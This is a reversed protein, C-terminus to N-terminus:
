MTRSKLGCEGGITLDDRGNLGDFWSLGVTVKCWLGRSM